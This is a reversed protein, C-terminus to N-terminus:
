DEDGEDDEYTGNAIAKLDEISSIKTKLVKKVEQMLKADRKYEMAEQIVEAAREVKYKPFDGMMEEEMTIGIERM